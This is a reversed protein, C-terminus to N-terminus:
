FRRPAVPDVTTQGEAITCVLDAPDAGPGGSGGWYNNAAVLKLRSANLLGCNPSPEVTFIISSTGNGYINNGNFGRVTAYRGITVGPGRNGVVDNNSFTRLNILAINRSDQPGFFFGERGSNTVINGSFRVETGELWVGQGNGDIFNNTVRLDSGGAVLGWGSNHVSTNDQLTVNAAANSGAGEFGNGGNLTAINEKVRVGEGIFYFGGQSNKLALNGTIQVNSVEADLGVIGGTLTFGQERAGFVVNNSRISVVVTAPTGSADIVTGIMGWVSVIRVSKTICILCGLGQDTEDGQDLLDGDGNIDGYRGLGVSITDGQSAKNLAHTISRCPRNEGGCASNDAGDNSVHLTVAGATSLGVSPLAALAILLSGLTSVCNMTM